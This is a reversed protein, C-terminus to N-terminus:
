LEELDHTAHHYACLTAFGRVTRVTEGFRSLKDAPANRRSSEARCSLRAAMALDLTCSAIVFPQLFTGGILLFGDM